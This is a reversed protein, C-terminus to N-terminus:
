TDIKVAYAQSIKKMKEAEDKKAKKKRDIM